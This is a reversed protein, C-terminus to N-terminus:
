LDDLTQYQVLHEDKLLEGYSKRAEIERIMRDKAGHLLLAPLKRLNKLETERLLSGSLSIAGAPV